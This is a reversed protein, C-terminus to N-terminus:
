QIDESVETDSYGIDEGTPADNIITVGEDEENGSGYSRHIRETNANLQDTRSRQEEHDADTKDSQGAYQAVFYAAKTNGKMAEKIQSLLMASELTCELGLSELVPNWEENDIEATLLMNLTKRFDAKRRRSEGSAKGGKRGFERAESPSLRKLNEDNAM